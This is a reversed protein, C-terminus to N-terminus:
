PGGQSFGGLITQALPIGTQEPLSELWTILQQRSDQLDMQQAFDHSRRFDYNVPFSYWMRGGPSMPHPFPGEPFLMQYGELKLYPALGVVDQANAGWGHLLVLLKDAPASSAPVSIVNLSM